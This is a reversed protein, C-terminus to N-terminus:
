EKPSRVRRDMDVQRGSVSLINVKHWRILVLILLGNELVGDVDRIELNITLLDLDFIIFVIMLVMHLVYTVVRLDYKQTAAQRSLSLGFRM